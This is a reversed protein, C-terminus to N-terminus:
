SIGNYIYRKEILNKKKEEELLKLYKESIESLKKIEGYILIEPAIHRFKKKILIGSPDEMIKLDKKLLNLDFIISEERSKKLAGIVEMDTKYLDSFYIIKKSLAKKLINSLIYYRLKAQEGSWHEKQMKLYKNAFEEAVNRDKFAIQGKHNILNLIFFNVEEGDKKLERLAYDIRDACLCPAGRELLGFGGIDFDKYNFRYKNLIEPIDSNQIINLHNNDQFDEKMPNGLTWDIVHSFATHSVDHLLGAIQEEIEGGLLRLLLMVGISHEYRSFNKKHYYEDPIGYQALFKLRQVPKSNILDILVGEGIIHEGYVEDIIKIGANENHEISKNENTKLIKKFDNFDGESLDKFVEKEFIMSKRYLEDEFERPILHFHLHNVKYKSEKIFARTNQRIDIGSPKMKEFLLKEVEKIEKILEL